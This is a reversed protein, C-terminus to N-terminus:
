KIICSLQVIGILHYHVLIQLLVEYGNDRLEKEIDYKGGWYRYSGMEERGWGMFGHVLIIPYKNQSYVSTIFFIFFLIISYKIRRQDQNM